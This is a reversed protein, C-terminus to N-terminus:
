KKFEGIGMKLGIEGYHIPGYQKRLEQELSYGSRLFLDLRRMAQIGFHAGLSNLNESHLGWYIKNNKSISIYPCFHSHTNYVTFRYNVSPNISWKENLHLKGGSAFNLVFPTISQHKDKTMYYQLVNSASISAYLSKHLYRFGLNLSLSQNDNNILIPNQNWPYDLGISNLKDVSTTSIGGGILISNNRNIVFQKALSLNFLLKNYNIGHSQQFAIGVGMQKSKIPFSNAIILEYPGQLPNDIHETPAAINFISSLTYRSEFGSISPDHIFHNNLNLTIDRARELGIQSISLYNELSKKLLAFSYGSKSRAEGIVVPAAEPIYNATTQIHENQKAVGNVTLESIGENAKDTSKTKDEKKSEIKSKIVNAQIEISTEDKFSNDTKSIATEAV